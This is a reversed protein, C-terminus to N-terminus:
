RNSCLELIYKVLNSFIFRFLKSGIRLGFTLYMLLNKASGPGKHLAVRLCRYPRERGM